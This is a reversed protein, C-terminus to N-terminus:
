VPSREKLMRELIGAASKVFKPCLTTFLKGAKAKQYGQPDGLDHGMLETCNVSGHEQEFCRIFDTVARYTKIKADRDENDIHGKALGLVMISGTVAGCTLGAGAMGGGFGAAMRLATEKELGFDNGYVSLIAQSCLFGDNFISVAQNIRSM